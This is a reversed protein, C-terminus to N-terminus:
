FYSVYIIGLSKKLPKEFSLDKVAVELPLIVACLDLTRNRFIFLLVVFFNSNESRLEVGRKRGKGLPSQSICSGRSGTPKKRRAM